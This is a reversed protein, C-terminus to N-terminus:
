YNGMPFFVITNGANIVNLRVTQATDVFMFPQFGAQTWGAGNDTSISVTVNPTTLPLIIFMGPLYQLLGPFNVNNILYNGTSVNTSVVKALYPSGATGAANGSIPMVNAM